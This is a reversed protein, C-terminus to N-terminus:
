GVLNKNANISIKKEATEGSIIISQIAWSDVELNRRIRAEISDSSTPGNIDNLIGVGLTPSQRFEGKNARLIFDISQEDSLGIRFDGAASIVLDDENITIDKAATAM